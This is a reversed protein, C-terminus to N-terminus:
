AYRATLLPAPDWKLNLGNRVKKIIGLVIAPVIGAVVLHVAVFFGVGGIEKFNEWFEQPSLFSLLQFM